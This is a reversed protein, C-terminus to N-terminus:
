AGVKSPKPQGAQTLFRELVVCMSHAMVETLEFKITLDPTIIEVIGRLPNTMTTSISCDTIKYLDAM